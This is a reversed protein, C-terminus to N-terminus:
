TKIECFDRSKKKEEGPDQTSIEAESAKHDCNIQEVNPGENGM